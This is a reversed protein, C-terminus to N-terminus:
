KKIIRKAEDELFAGATRGDEVHLTELDERTVPRCGYMYRKAELMIRSGHFEVFCIEEGTKPSILVRAPYSNAYRLDSKFILKNGQREDLRFLGIRAVDKPVGKHALHHPLDALYVIRQGAIFVHNPNKKNM